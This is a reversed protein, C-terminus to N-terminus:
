LCYKKFMWSGALKKLKKSNRFKYETTYFQNKNFPRYLPLGVIGHLRRPVNVMLICWYIVSVSNWSKPSNQQLSEGKLIKQVISKKYNRLIRLFTSVKIKSDECKHIVKGILVVNRYVFCAISVLNSKTSANQGNPTSRVETGISHRLTDCRVWFLEKKNQVTIDAILFCETFLACSRNSATPSQEPSLLLYVGTIELIRSYKLSGDIACATRSISGWIISM